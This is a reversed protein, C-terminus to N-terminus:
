DSDHEGEIRGAPSWPADWTSKKENKWAGDLAGVGKGLEPHIKEEKGGAKPAAYKAVLKPLYKDIDHSIRKVGLAFRENMYTDWDAKLGQRVWAKNPKITGVGENLKPHSPLEQDIADLAAGIREKQDKFFRKIDPAKMYKRVGMLIKLKIMVEGPGKDTPDEMQTDMVGNDLANEGVKDSYTQQLM